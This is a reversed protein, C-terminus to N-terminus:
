RKKKDIGLEEKKEVVLMEAKSSIDWALKEVEDLNELFESKSETEMFKKFRNRQWIGYGMYWGTFLLLLIGGPMLCLDYQQTNTKAKGHIFGVWDQLPSPLWDAHKDYILLALSSLVILIISIITFITALPLTYDRLFIKLSFKTEQWSKGKKKKQSKKAMSRGEAM